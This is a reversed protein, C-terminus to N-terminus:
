PQEDKTEPIEIKLKRAIARTVRGDAKQRRKMDGLDDKIVRHEEANARDVAILDAKTASDKTIDSAVKDRIAGWVFMTLAVGVAGVVPGLLKWGLGNREKVHVVRYRGSATREEPPTPEETIIDPPM